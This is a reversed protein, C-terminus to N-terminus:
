RAAAWEVAIPEVIDGHVTIVGKAFGFIPERDGELPALRAVPRGRKTITVGQQKKVVRDIVQACHAKLQSTSIQKPDM